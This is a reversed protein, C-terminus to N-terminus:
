LRLVFFDFFHVYIIKLLYPRRHSTKEIRFGFCIVVCFILLFTEKLYLFVFLSVLCKKWYNQDSLLIIIHWICATQLPCRELRFAWAFHLAVDYAKICHLRMICNEENNKQSQDIQKLQM